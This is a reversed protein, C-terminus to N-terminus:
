SKGNSIVNNNFARSYIFLIFCVVKQHKRSLLYLKLPNFCKVSFTVATVDCVRTRTRTPWVVAYAWGVAFILLTLSTAGIYQDTGKGWWSKMQWFCRSCANKQTIKKSVDM